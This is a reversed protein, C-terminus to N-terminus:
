TNARTRLIENLLTKQEPSTIASDMKVKVKYGRINTLTPHRQNQMLTTLHAVCEEKTLFYLHNHYQSSITQIAQERINRLHRADESIMYVTPYGNTFCKQINQLEYAVSNTVSVEVAIQINEYVLEIDVRGGDTTPVELTAKFGLGEASRKIYTQLFQHKKLEYRKEEHAVFDAQADQLNTPETKSIIIPIAETTDVEEAKKNLDQEIHVVPEIRGEVSPVQEVEFQPKGYDALGHKRIFQLNREQLDKDSIPVVPIRINGDHDRKGIRIIADGVQLNQLDYTDFSAFGSELKKADGDGLRFCIRTYPNSIISEAVEKDKSYVQELSQHALVLGIGYKRAGSLISSISDTIFNQFEDIYIYFPSREHATLQQRAQACQNLKALILTGLLYSNQEGIIGQSLKVLVIKRGNMVENFDIGKQQRMMTRIIKPRLFTDLRTLIPGIANNKLVPFEHKWYSHVTDDTVSQLFQKRFETGVLFRRLDLLTGGKNSEVFANIANSLVSTMQDGWSTSQRKFVSVLDSELVTQEHYSKASLLNLGVSYETESPDIIVVDKLRNETITGLCSDILDGHPDLVCIGNGLKIDQQILHTLLNSKGSGTAGIIHVHRLREETSLGISQVIGYHENIGITYEKGVHISPVLKSRRINVQLKSAQVSPFPLHAISLLEKCNLLMGLVHSTRMIIDMAQDDYPLGIQMPSLTNYKGHNSRTLGRYLGNLLEDNRGQDRSHAILRISVGFLPSSVKEQSLPLMDPDDTFFPQNEFNTVARLISKQWANQAGQFVIQLMAMEGNRVQELTAFLGTLPDVQPKPDTALPRMFEDQLALYVIQAYQGMGWIEDIYRTHKSIIVKPLYLKIYEHVQISESEDCVVQIVIRDATGIIEFSLPYNTSTLMLLLEYQSSLPIQEGQPVTLQFEVPNQSVHAQYPELTYTLGETEEARETKQQKFLGTLQQGLTPVKGDDPLTRRDSLHNLHSFPYFPPELQVPEPFYYWGRGRLEWNYFGVTLREPITMM